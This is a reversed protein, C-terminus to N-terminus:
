LILESSKFNEKGSGLGKFTCHGCYFRCTRTLYRSLHRSHYTPFGILYLHNYMSTEM